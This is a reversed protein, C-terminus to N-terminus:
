QMFTDTRTFSLSKERFGYVEDGFCFFARYKDHTSSDPTDGQKWAANWM